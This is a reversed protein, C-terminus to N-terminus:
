MARHAVLVALSLKTKKWISPNEKVRSLIRRVYEDHTSYLQIFFKSNNLFLTTEKLPTGAIAKAISAIWTMQEFWTFHVFENFVSIVIKDQIKHLRKSKKLSVWCPNQTSEHAFQRKSNELRILRYSIANFLECLFEGESLTVLFIQM